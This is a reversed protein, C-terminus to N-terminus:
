SGLITAHPPYFGLGQCLPAGACPGAKTCRIKALLINAGIENGEPICM